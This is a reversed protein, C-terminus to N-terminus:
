KPAEPIYSYINTIITPSSCKPCKGEVKLVYDGKKFEREGKYDCEECEIMTKVVPEVRRPPARMRRTILLVDVVIVVLLLLVILYDGVM